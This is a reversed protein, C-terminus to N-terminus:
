EYLSVRADAERAITDFAQWFTAQKLDLNVKVGDEKSRRRDEVKNGTQKALEALAQSLPLDKGKLTITRPAYNKQAQAAQLQRIVQTLQKNEGKKGEEARPLLPLIGPGLDVLAKAAEARRAADGDKLDALLQKVRDKVEASAEE